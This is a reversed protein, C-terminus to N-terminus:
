FCPGPNSALATSSCYRVPISNSRQGDGKIVYVKSEVLAWTARTYGQGELSPAYVTARREDLGSAGHALPAELEREAVDQGTGATNTKVLKFFFMVKQKPDCWTSGCSVMGDLGTGSITVQQGGIFGDPLAKILQLEMPEIRFALANSYENRCNVVHVWANKAMPPSPLGGPFGDNPVPPPRFYLSGNLFSYKQHAPADNSINLYWSSAPITPQSPGFSFMPTLPCAQLEVPTLSLNTRVTRGQVDNYAGSADNFSTIQFTPSPLNPAAPSTTISVSSVIAISSMRRSQIQGAPARIVGERVRVQASLGPSLLAVTLAMALYPHYTV